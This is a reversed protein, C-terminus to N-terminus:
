DHKWKKLAVTTGRGAASVIECEDVLRRLGRLGLRVDGASDGIAQETTPIGPGDDRAIVLVGARGEHDLPKLVIEGQNAYLVINRALESIATAVLMADPSSFGLGLVFSRGRQRATVIDGDSAIALTTETQPSSLASTM